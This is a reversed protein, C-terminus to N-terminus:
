GVISVFDTAAHYAQAIELVKRDAGKPGILQMGMPLGADNFGVPVSVAPLGLLSAPVMVQMWRHYSDMQTGNIEKPWDWSAPFPWCQAVPLALVDFGEFLKAAAAFWDSRVKTALHLAM